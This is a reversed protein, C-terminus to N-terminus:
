IKLWKPKKAEAGDEDGKGSITGAAERLLNAEDDADGKSAASAEEVGDALRRGTPFSRKHSGSNTDGSLAGAAGEAGDGSQHAQNYMEQSLYNWGALPEGVGVVSLRQTLVEDIGGRAQPRCLESRWSVYIIVAPVLHLDHLTVGLPLSTRPPTTYLDMDYTCMGNPNHLNTNIWARVDDM